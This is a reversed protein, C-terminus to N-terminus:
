KDKKVDEVKIAEVELTIKVTDGVLLEGTELTKSWTLGFDKRDIEGELTFGMRTNGWPDKAVGGFDLEFVVEKTIGKITLDGVMKDGDHKKMVFNMKPFKEVNFFDEARLHDDRKQNKTDISAVDVIGELKNFKSKELDYDIAGDFEDFYGKTYSIMMHKIKFGVTTHPVDLKFETASLSIASFAFLAVLFRFFKTFIM